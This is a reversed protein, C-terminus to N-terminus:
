VSSSESEQSHRQAVESVLGVSVQYRLRTIRSKCLVVAVEVLEAIASDFPLDDKEPLPLSLYPSGLCM